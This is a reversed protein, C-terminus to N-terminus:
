VRPSDNQGGTWWRSRRRLVAAWQPNLYDTLHKIGSVFKLKAGGSPVITHLSVANSVIVVEAGAAIASMIFPPARATFSRRSRKAGTEHVITKVAAVTTCAQDLEM